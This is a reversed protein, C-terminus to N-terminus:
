VRGLRCFTLRRMAAKAEANTDFNMPFHDLAPVFEMGNGIFRAYTEGRISHSIGASLDTSRLKTVLLFTSDGHQLDPAQLLHRLESLIRSAAKLARLPKPTELSWIMPPIINQVSKLTCDNSKDCHILLM